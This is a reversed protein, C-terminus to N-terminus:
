FYTIKNTRCFITYTGCDQHIFDKPCSYFSVLNCYPNLEYSICSVHLRWCSKKKFSLVNSIYLKCWWIVIDIVYEHVILKCLPLLFFTPQYIQHIPMLGLKCIILRLLILLISSRFELSMQKTQNIPCLNSCTCLATPPDSPPPPLYYHPPCLRGGGRTSIPNFSRGFDPYAM